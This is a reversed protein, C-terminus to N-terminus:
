VRCFSFFQRLFQCIQRPAHRSTAAQPDGCGCPLRVIKLGLRLKQLLVLQLRMVVHRCCLQSIAPWSTILEWHYCSLASASPPAASPSLRSPRQCCSAVIYPVVWTSKPVRGELGEKPLGEKWKHRKKISHNWACPHTATSNPACHHRRVWLHTGLM